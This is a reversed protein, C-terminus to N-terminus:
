WSKVFASLLLFGVATLQILFISNGASLQRNTTRDLDVV